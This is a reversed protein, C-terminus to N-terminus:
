THEVLVAAEKLPGMEEERADAEKLVVMEEERVEAMVAIAVETVLDQGVTVTAAVQALVVVM